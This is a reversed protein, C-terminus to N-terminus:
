NNKIQYMLQILTLVRAIDNRKTDQEADEFSDMWDSIRNVGWLVAYKETNKEFVIPFFNDAITYVTSQENDILIEVDERLVTM